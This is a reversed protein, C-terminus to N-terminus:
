EALAFRAYVVLQLAAFVVLVALGWYLRGLAGYKAAILRALHHAIVVVENNLQDMRADSWAHRYDELECDKIFEWHLLGRPGRPNKAPPTASLRRPRLCDIAHFVFLCTLGAYVVLFGILWPQLESAPGSLLHAKSLVLFVGANLVGMVVLAYRAKHDALEAVRRGEDVVDMLIRWREFSRPPREADHRLKAQRKRHRKEGEHPPEAVSLSPMPPKIAAPM